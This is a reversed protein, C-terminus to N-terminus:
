ATNLPNKNKFYNIDRLSKRGGSKTKKNIQKKSRSIFYKRTFPATLPM